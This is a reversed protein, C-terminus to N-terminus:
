VEAIPVNRYREGVVAAIDENHLFVQDDWSLDHANCGKFHTSNPTKGIGGMTTYWM